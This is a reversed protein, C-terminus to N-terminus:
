ERDKRAAEPFIWMALIMLLGVGVAVWGLDGRGVVNTEIYWTAAAVVAVLLSIILKITPPM